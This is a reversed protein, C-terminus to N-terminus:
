IFNLKSELTAKELMRIKICSSKWCDDPSLNSLILSDQSFSTEYKGLKQLFFDKLIKKSEKTLAEFESLKNMLHKEQSSQRATSDSIIEELTAGPLQCIQIKRCTDMEILPATNPEPLGKFVSSAGLLRLSMMNDSGFIERILKMKLAKVESTSGVMLEEWPFPFKMRHHRTESLEPFGYTRMFAYCDKTDSYSILLEEGKAVPRATKVQFSRTADDYSQICNPSCNHNLMDFLPVMTYPQYLGSTARSLVQGLAWAFQFYSPNDQPFLQSHLQRYFSQRSRIQDALPSAQLPELDAKNMLLPHQSASTGMNQAIQSLYPHHTSGPDGLTFLLQMALCITPTLKSSGRLSGTNLSELQDVFAPASQRAQHVATDASLPVWVQPPLKLVCVGKPLNTSAKLGFGFPGEFVEPLNFPASSVGNEPKLIWRAFVETYKGRDIASRLFM